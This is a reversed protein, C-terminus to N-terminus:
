CGGRLPMEVGLLKVMFKWVNLSSVGIKCLTKWLCFFHLIDWNVKYALMFDALSIVLFIMYRDEENVDM